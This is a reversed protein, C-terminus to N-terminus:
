NNIDSPLRERPEIGLRHLMEALLDPIVWGELNTYPVAHAIKRRNRDQITITVDTGGLLFVADKVGPTAVIGRLTTHLKILEETKLPFAFQNSINATNFVVSYDVLVDSPRCKVWFMPTILHKKNTNFRRRVEEILTTRVKLFDAIVISSM